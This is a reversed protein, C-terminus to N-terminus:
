LSNVQVLRLSTAMVKMTGVFDVRTFWAGVANPFLPIGAPLCRTHDGLRTAPSMHSDGLPTFTVLGTMPVGAFVVGLAIAAELGQFLRQCLLPCRKM